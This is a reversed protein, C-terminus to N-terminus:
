YAPRTTWRSLSAPWMSLDREAPKWIEEVKPSQGGIFWKLRRSLSRREPMPSMTRRCVKEKEAEACNSLEAVEIRRRLEPLQSSVPSEAIRSKPIAATPSRFRQGGVGSRLFQIAKRTGVSMSVIM